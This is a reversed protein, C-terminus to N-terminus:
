LQRIALAIREDTITDLVIHKRISANVALLLHNVEQATTPGFSIIAQASHPTNLAFYSRVNSASSFILVDCHEILSPSEVTRYCIWPICNLGQAAKMISRRSEEAMPFLVDTAPRLHKKFEEAVKKPDSSEGIYSTPFGRDHIAKATGQGMAALFPMHDNFRQEDLFFEVSRPSAFFIWETKPVEELQQVREFRILRKAIFTHEKFEEIWPCESSMRTVFIVSM